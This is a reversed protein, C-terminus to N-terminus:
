IPLKVDGPFVPIGKLTLSKSNEKAKEEPLWASMAKANGDSDCIVLAATKNKGPVVQQLMEDGVPTWSAVGMKLLLMPYCPGAAEQLVAVARNVRRKGEQVASFYDM